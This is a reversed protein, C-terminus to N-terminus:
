VPSADTALRDTGAEGARWVATELVAELGHELVSVVAVPRELLHPPVAVLQVQPGHEGTAIAGTSLQCQARWGAPLAHELDVAQHVLEHWARTPPRRRRVHWTQRTLRGDADYTSTALRWRREGATADRWGAELDPHSGTPVLALMARIVQDAASTCGRQHPGPYAYGDRVVLMQEPVPLALSSAADDARWHVALWDRDPPWPEGPYRPYRTRDVRTQIRQLRATGASLEVDQRGGTPEPGHLRVTLRTHRSGTGACDGCARDTAGRGACHPCDPDAPTLEWTAMDVIERCECTLAYARGTGHCRRCDVREGRAVARADATDAHDHLRDAVSGLDTTTTTWADRRAPDRHVAVIARRREREDDDLEALAAREREHQQQRLAEVVDALGGSAVLQERLEPVHVQMPQRGLRVTRPETGGNPVWAVVDSSGDARARLVTNGPADGVFLLRWAETLLDSPEGTM